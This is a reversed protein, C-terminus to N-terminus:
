VLRHLTGTGAILFFGPHPVGGAYPDTRFRVSGNVYYTHGDFQIKLVQNVNSSYPGTPFEQADIYVPPIPSVPTTMDGVCAISEGVKRVNDNVIVVLRAWRGRPELVLGPTHLEQALQPCVIRLM